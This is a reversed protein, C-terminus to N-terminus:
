ISCYLDNVIEEEDDETELQGATSEIPFTQMQIPTEKLRNFLSIKRRLYFIIFLQVVNFIILLPISIVSAIGFNEQNTWSHVMNMFNPQSKNGVEYTINSVTINTIISIGETAGAIEDQEKKIETINRTEACKKLGQFL